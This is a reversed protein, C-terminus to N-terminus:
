HWLVYGRLVKKPSVNCVKNLLLGIFNLNQPKQTSPDFNTLNSMGIKFRCTLEEELNAHNKITM